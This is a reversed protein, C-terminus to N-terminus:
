GWQKELEKFYIKAHEVQTLGITRRQNERIFRIFRIYVILTLATYLYQLMNTTNYYFVYNAISLDEKYSRLLSAIINYLLYITAYAIDMPLILRMALINENLQFNLSLNYGSRDRNIQHIQGNLKTIKWDCYATFIVILCTIINVYVSVILNNKNTLLLAGEVSMTPDAYAVLIIFTTYCIASVWLFIIMVVVLKRGENEYRHLFLTARLRELMICFHLFPYCVTYLYFSGVLTAALWFPTLLECPDKYYLLILCYRFMTIFQATIHIFYLIVINTFLLLLNKHIAIRRKLFQRILELILLLIVFLLVLSVRLVVAYAPSLLSQEIILSLSTINIFTTQYNCAM